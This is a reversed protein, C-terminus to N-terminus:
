KCNRLAEKFIVADYLEKEEFSNILMIRQNWIVVINHNHTTDIKPMKNKSTNHAIWRKSKLASFLGINNVPIFRKLAKNYKPSLM